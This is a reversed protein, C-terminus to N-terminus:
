APMKGGEEVVKPGPWRQWHAPRMGVADGAHLEGVLLGELWVRWCDKGEPQLGVRQGVFARSIFRLRGQWKIAGTGRVRRAAWGEPYCAAAL